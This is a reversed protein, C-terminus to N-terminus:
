QAATLGPMEQVATPMYGAAREAHLEALEAHRRGIEPDCAREALERCQQARESHYVFDEHAM